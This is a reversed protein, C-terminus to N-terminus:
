GHTKNHLLSIPPALETILTRFLVDSSNYQHQPSMAPIINESEVPPGDIHLTSPVGGVEKDKSYRRNSNTPNLIPWECEPAEFDIHHAPNYVHASDNAAAMFTNNAIGESLLSTHKSPTGIPPPLTSQQWSLPVVNSTTEQQRPPSVNLPMTQLFDIDRSSTPTDDQKTVEIPLVQTPPTKLPPTVSPPTKQPPTTVLSKVNASSKANSSDQAKKQPTTKLTTGGM